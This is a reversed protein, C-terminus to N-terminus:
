MPAETAYLSTAPRLLYAVFDHTLMTPDDVRSPTGLWQQHFPGTKSRYAMSSAQYFRNVPLRKNEETHPIQRVTKAATVPTVIPQQPRLLESPNVPNLIMTGSAEAQKGSGNDFQAYNKRTFRCKM